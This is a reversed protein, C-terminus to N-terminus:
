TARGTHTGSGSLYAASYSIAAAHADPHACFVFGCDYPVNLWKHGDCAWSDALELGDTLHRTRPNAAAWLGFAGDM